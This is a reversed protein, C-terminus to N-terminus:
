DVTKPLVLSELGLLAQANRFLIRERDGSDLVRTTRIQNLFHPTADGFFPADTCFLLRDPGAFQLGFALSRETYVVTDYWFRRFYTDFDHRAASTGPTAAMLYQIRDVLLPLAGGLHSWCIRLGPHRDFAGSLVFRAAALTTDLPYGVTQELRYDHMCELGAPSIPHVFIPLDLQEVAEFFPALAPNDLQMGNINTGLLVMRHGLGVARHLERIALDLAQVPVAAVPIFRGPAADAMAALADNTVQCLRLAEDPRAWFVMPPALSLAQTTVGADNMAKLRVDRDFFAPTFRISRRGGVFLQYGDGEVSELTVANGSCRQIEKLYALPFFHAHIDIVM